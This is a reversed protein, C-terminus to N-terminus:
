DEFSIGVRIRKPPNKPDPFAAHQVYLTDFAAGDKRHDGPYRYRHTQTHTRELEMTVVQGGELHEILPQKRPM